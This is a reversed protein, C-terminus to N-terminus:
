ACPVVIRAGCEADARFDHRTGRGVNLTASESVEREEYLDVDRRERMSASETVDRDDEGERGGSLAVAENAERDEDEERGGSL